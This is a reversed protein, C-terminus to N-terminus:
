DSLRCPTEKESHNYTHEHAQAKKHTYAHTCARTHTKKIRCKDDTISLLVRDLLMQDFKWQIQQPCTFINIFCHRVSACARVFMCVCTCVSVSM